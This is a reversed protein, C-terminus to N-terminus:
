HSNSRCLATNAQEGLEGGIDKGADLLQAVIGDLEHGDHLVGVVGGKAVLDGVKESGATAITIHQHTM